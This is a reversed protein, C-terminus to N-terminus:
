LKNIKEKVQNSLKIIEDMEEITLVIGYEQYLHKFLENYCDSIEKPINM